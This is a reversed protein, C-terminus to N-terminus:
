RATHKAATNPDRVFVNSGGMRVYRGDGDGGGDGVGGLDDDCGKM